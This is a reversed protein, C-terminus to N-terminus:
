VLRDLYETLQKCMAIPVIVDTSARGLFPDLVPARDEERLTIM